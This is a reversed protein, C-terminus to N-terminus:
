SGQTRAPDNPHPSLVVIDINSFWPYLILTSLAKRLDEESDAQWLGAAKWEGPQLPPRWMRLVTGEAALEAARVAEGSKADEIQQASTGEPPNTTLTVFFEM